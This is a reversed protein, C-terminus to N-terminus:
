TGGGTEPKHGRKREEPEDARGSRTLFLSLLGLEVVGFAIKLSYPVVPQHYQSFFSEVIGAWALLIAVGFILTVLDDTVARLRARVSVAAGWGILARGLVLGAQGSILIAPIEVAGHPLLWGAVFRIEGALIYDLVVAGLIVGNYFLLIITGIGWTMGLALTVISINTNHTMLMASFSGKSGKLRDQHDSEEYRVRESPNVQLSPFPLLISKAQPDAYLAIGGFAGGVVTIAVALAFAWAHRRFTRPLTRFFWKAPSFRHPKDRTEHIEAYARAVLPELYQRVRPEYPLNVLRALDTSARQYLYHFRKAEELTLVREANTELGDLLREIETWYPEEAALFREIDVIV